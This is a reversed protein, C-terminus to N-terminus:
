YVFVNFWAWEIRGEVVHVEFYGDEGEGLGRDWLWRYVVKRTGDPYPPYIEKEGTALLHQYKVCARGRPLM